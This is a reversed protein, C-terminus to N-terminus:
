RYTPDTDEHPETFVIGLYGSQKGPECKPKRLQPPGVATVQPHVNTPGGAINVSHSREGPLQDILFRIHDKRDCRGRRNSQVM